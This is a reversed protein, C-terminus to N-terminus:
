LWFSALRLKEGDHEARERNLYQDIQVLKEEADDPSMESIESDKTLGLSHLSTGLRLGASSTVLWRDHIPSQKGREGGIIVIKARPPNQDFMTRWTNVYLDELEDGPPPTPQNRRGTLITIECSPKSTRILQLWELDQPAFYPDAIKVFDGLNRECWIAITKM